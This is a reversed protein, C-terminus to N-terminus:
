RKNEGAAGVYGLGNHNTSEIFVLCRHSLVFHKILRCQNEIM